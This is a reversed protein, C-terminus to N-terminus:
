LSGCPFARACAGSDRVGNSVVRVGGKEIPCPLSHHVKGAIVLLIEGGIYFAPDALGRHPRGAFPRLPLHGLPESAISPVAPLMGRREAVM